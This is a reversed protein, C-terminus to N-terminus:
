QRAGARTPAARPKAWVGVLAVAFGVYSSRLATGLAHVMLGPELPASGSGAFAQVMGSITGLMGLLLASEIAPDLWAPAPPPPLAAARAGLGELVHAAIAVGLLAQPVVVFGVADVAGAAGAASARGLAGPGLGAALALAPPAGALAALSAAVAGARLGAGAEALPV